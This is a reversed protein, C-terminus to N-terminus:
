CACVLVCLCVCVLGRSIVNILGSKLQLLRWKKAPSTDGDSDGFSPAYISTAMYRRIHDLKKDFEHGLGELQSSRKEQPCFCSM